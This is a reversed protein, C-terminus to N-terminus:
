LERLEFAFAKFSVKDARVTYYEVSNHSIVCSVGGVLNNSQPDRYSVTVKFSNLVSQLQAMVTSDLPIIGVEITRKTNIYKVVSNGSANTQEKYNHKRTITLKNVYKSFDIGNIILYEM